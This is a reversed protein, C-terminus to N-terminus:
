ANCDVEKTFKAIYENWDIKFDDENINCTVKWGNPFCYQHTIECLGCPLRYKCTPYSINRATTQYAPCATTTTNVM